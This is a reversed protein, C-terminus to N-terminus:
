KSMRGIWYNSDSFFCDKEILYYLYRKESNLYYYFIFVKNKSIYVNNNQTKCSIFYFPIDDEFRIYHIYADGKKFIWYNEDSFSFEKKINSGIKKNVYDVNQVNNFVFLTDWDFLFVDKLDIPPNLPKINLLQSHMRCQQEFDELTYKKNCNIFLLSWILLCIIKTKAIFSSLVCENM